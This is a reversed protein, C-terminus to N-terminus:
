SIVRLRSRPRHTGEVTSHFPHAYEPADSGSSALVFRSTGSREGAEWAQIFDGIIGEAEGLVRFDAAEYAEPSSTVDPGGGVVPKGRAHVVDILDLIDSRQPMMGGIMVLDAWDIDADTLEETNRNVLRCDWSPPLMAAVTILGLPATMVRGGYIECVAELSLFTRGAFRPSILLVKTVDTM